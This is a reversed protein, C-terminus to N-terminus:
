GDLYASVSLYILSGRLLNGNLGNEGSRDIGEFRRMGWDKGCGFGGVVCACWWGVLVVAGWLVSKYGM